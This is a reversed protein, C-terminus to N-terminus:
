GHSVVGCWQSGGDVEVVQGVVDHGVGSGVEVHGVGEGVM